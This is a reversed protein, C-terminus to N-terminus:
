RKPAVLTVAVAPPTPTGAPLGLTAVKTSYRGAPLPPGSKPTCPPDNVTVPRGGCRQFKTIVQIPFKNVGPKLQITPACAVTLWVPDYTITKNALGVQIWGSRACTEVTIRKSTNNTIVAFGKITQGTTVRTQGLQIRISLPTKPSANSSGSPMLILLACTAAVLLVLAGIVGGKSFRRM